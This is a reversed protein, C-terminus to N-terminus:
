VRTYTTCSARVLRGSDLGEIM